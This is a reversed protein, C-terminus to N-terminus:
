DLASLEMRDIIRMCGYGGRVAMIAKIGNDDIMAQLDAAREEDSGSFQNHSGYLHQGEVPVYGWGQLIELGPQLEERSVKRAPAIIGIKDGPILFDPQRM